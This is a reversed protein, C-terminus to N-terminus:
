FRCIPVMVIDFTFLFADWSRYAVRSLFILIYTMCTRSRKKNQKKRKRNKKTIIVSLGEGRHKLGRDNM